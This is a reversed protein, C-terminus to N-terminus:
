CNKDECLKRRIHTILQQQRLPLAKIQDPRLQLMQRYRRTHEVLDQQAKPLKSISEPPLQLLKDLMQQRQLLGKQDHTMKQTSEAPQELSRLVTQTEQILDEGDVVDTLAKIKIEIKKKVLKVFPTQDLSNQAYFKTLQVTGLGVM